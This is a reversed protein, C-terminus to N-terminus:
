LLRGQPLLALKLIGLCHNWWSIRLNEFIKSGIICNQKSKDLLTCFCILASVTWDPFYYHQCLNIVHSTQGKIPAVTTVIRIDVVGDSYETCIYLVTGHMWPMALVMSNDALLVTILGLTAGPFRWVMLASIKITGSNLLIELLQLTGSGV